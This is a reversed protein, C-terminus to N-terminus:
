PDAPRVLRLLRLQAHRAPLHRVDTMSHYRHTRHTVVVSEHPRRVPAVRIVAQPQRSTWPAPSISRTGPTLRLTESPIASFGQPMVGMLDEVLAMGLAYTVM